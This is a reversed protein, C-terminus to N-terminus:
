EARHQASKIRAEQEAADGERGLERLLKAYDKVLQMHVTSNRRPQEDYIELARKYNEEAEQTKKQLHYVKGLHYLTVAMPGGYGLGEAQALASKLLTEAESLNGAELAKQGSEHTHAWQERAALNDSAAGAGSLVLLYISLLLGSSKRIFDPWARMVNAIRPNPMAGSFGWM